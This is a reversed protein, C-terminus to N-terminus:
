GISYSKKLSKKIYKQLLKQFINRCYKFFFVKFFSEFAWEFPNWFTSWCIRFETNKFIYSKCFIEFAPFLFMMSDETLVRSLIQLHERRLLRMLCKKKFIHVKPKIRSYVGEFVLYWHLEHLIKSVVKTLVGANVRFISRSSSGLFIDPSIKSPVAPPIRTTHEPTIELISRPKQSHIRLYVEPSNWLSSKSITKSFKM